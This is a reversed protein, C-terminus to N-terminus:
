QDPLDAEVGCNLRKGPLDAEVGCTLREGKALEVGPLDVGAIGGVELIVRGQVGGCFSSKQM